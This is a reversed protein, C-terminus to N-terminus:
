WTVKILVQQDEVRVAYHDVCIGTPLLHAGNDIKFGWHHFGCYVHEDDIYGQSSIKLRRHPCEDHLAYLKKDKNILVIPYDQGDKPIDFAYLGDQEVESYDCLIIWHENKMAQLDSNKSSTSAYLQRKDQGSRLLNKKPAQTRDTSEDQSM